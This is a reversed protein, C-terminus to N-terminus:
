KGKKLLSISILQHHNYARADRYSSDFLLNIASITDKALIYTKFQKNGRIYLARYTNM